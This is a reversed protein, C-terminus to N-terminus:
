PNIGQKWKRGNREFQVGDRDIKNVTTGSVQQGERVVQTNIIASPRDESYLVGTVILDVPPEAAHATTEESNVAMTAPPPTLQMPDRGGPEYLGPIEWAIEVDPSVPRVIPSPPASAAKATPHMGLPKKVLAIIAIVLVPILATMLRQRRNGAGEKRAYPRIAPKPKAARTVGAKAQVRPPEQDATPRLPRSEKPTEPADRPEHCIVDLPRPTATEDMREERPPSPTQEDPVEATPELLKILYSELPSAPHQELETEAEGASPSTSWRSPDPEPDQEARPSEEWALSTMDPTEIGDEEERNHHALGIM